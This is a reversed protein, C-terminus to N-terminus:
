EWVAKPLHKLTARGTMRTVWVFPKTLPLCRSILALAELTNESDATVTQTDRNVIDGNNSLVLLDAIYQQNMSTFGWQKVTVDADAITMAKAYQQLADWNWTGAKVLDYPSALGAEQVLRKNFIIGGNVEKTFKGMGDQVGDYTTETRTVSDWSPDSLDIGVSEAIPTLDAVLGAKIWEPFIWPQCFMIQGFNDGAMTNAVMNDYFEGGDGCDV